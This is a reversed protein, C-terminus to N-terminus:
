FLDTKVKQLVPSDCSMQLTYAPPRPNSFALMFDMSCHASATNKYAGEDAYWDKGSTIGQFWQRMTPTVNENETWGNQKLASDLQGAATVFRAKNAASSGIVVYKNVYVTCQLQLKGYGYIAEQTCTSRPAKTIGLTAFPTKLATLESGFASRAQYGYRVKDFKLGIKNHQGICAVLVVLFFVSAAILVM